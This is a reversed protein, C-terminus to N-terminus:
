NFYSSESVYMFKQFNNIRGRSKNYTFIQSHFLPGSDRRPKYKIHHPLSVKDPERIGLWGVGLTRRLLVPSFIPPLLEHTSKLIPSPEGILVVPLVSEVQPFNILISKSPSFCLCFYFLVKGLTSPNDTHVLVSVQGVATEPQLPTWSPAAGV